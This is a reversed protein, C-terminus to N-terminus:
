RKPWSMSSGAWAWMHSGFRTSEPPWRVLPLPPRRWTATVRRTLFLSVAVSATLAAMLGLALSLTSADRFAWEAHYVVPENAAQGAVMHEHFIRPGLSAAVLWATGAGVLVVAVTSLLLRTGLGWRRARM